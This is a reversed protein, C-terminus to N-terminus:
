IFITQERKPGVSVIKLPVGLLEELRSLYIKANKPLEDYNRINSIDEMWGEFVEYVPEFDCHTRVQTPYFETIEGTTKNKYAVCLKIKDFNDFVDLKTIAACSLGGVLVSYRAIVADFWGCRRARGTTTGFEAGVERIKGGIDNMLETVFPGEGVRTIYAKFVGIAEGIAMPGVGAGVGAGGAIPNSSTVYPYTGYDVDLLVGQAGEFLMTKNKKADELLAQWGWAVYPAFLERYNKCLELLTEKSYPKLGYIKELVLNKAPLIVDLKESLIKEDFLDEMRVGVRAYKDTYTPGIGKKTTGIKNEGLASESIADLDIHYPMTIHSLPSIKLNQEFRKKSVGQGLLSELEKKFSEPHLVVGAGIFCTKDEYLIGSPILHFKYTKDGVVVTHGANSGGQFRVIIQAKEALIDTVKAKGEDGFQAGVIVTNKM